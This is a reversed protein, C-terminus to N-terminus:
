TAIVMRKLRHPKYWRFYGQKNKQRNIFIKTSINAEMQTGKGKMSGGQSIKHKNVELNPSDKKIIQLMHKMTQKNIQYAITIIKQYALAEKM